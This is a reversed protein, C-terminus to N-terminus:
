LFNVDSMYHGGHLHVTVSQWCLFGNSFSHGSYLRLIVRAEESIADLSILWRLYRVFRLPSTSPEWVTNWAFFSTSWSFFSLSPFFILGSLSVNEASDCEPCRINGRLEPFLSEPCWLIFIVSALIFDIPSPLERNCTASVVIGPRYRKEPHPVFKPDPDSWARPQGSGPRRGTAPKPWLGKEQKLFDRVRAPLSASTVREGGSM